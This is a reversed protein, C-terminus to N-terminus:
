LWLAVLKSKLRGAKQWARPKKMAMAGGVKKKTVGGKSMGKAKKMQGGKQMKGKGDMAFAPIMKGTKPDKKMPMKAM